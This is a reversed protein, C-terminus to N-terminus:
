QSVVSLSHLSVIGFCFTIGLRTVYTAEQLKGEIEHIMEMKNPQLLSDSRGNSAELKHINTEIDHFLAQLRAESIQLDAVTTSTYTAM